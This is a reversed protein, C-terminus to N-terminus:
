LTSALLPLASIRQRIWGWYSEYPIGGHFRDSSGLVTGPPQKDLECVFLAGDQTATAPRYFLRLDINTGQPALEKVTATVAEAAQDVMTRLRKEWDM